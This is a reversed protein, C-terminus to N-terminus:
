SVYVPVDEIPNAARRIGEEAAIRDLEGGLRDIEPSILDAPRCTVPNDGNLVRKALAANVPAPTRGYEGKLLASTERTISGYREGGLINVISQTGVIQSTPTVLPVLGLDERVRPM